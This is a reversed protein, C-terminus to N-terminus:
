PVQAVEGDNRSGLYVWTPYDISENFFHVSGDGMAAQVGGPHLSNYGLSWFHCGDAVWNSPFPECAMPTKHQNPPLNTTAVIYHSHFLMFDKQIAPLVEGILLTSTLGDRCDDFDYTVWGSSFLGPAGHDAYGQNRSICNKGDPWAPIMCTGNGPAVPGGCPAYWLGMSKSDDSLPGAIHVGSPCSSSGFRGHGQLDPATDSPCRMGPVVQGLILSANPEQHTPITTDLKDALATQEMYPMISTFWNHCGYINGCSANVPCYSGAPLTGQAQHYNHLALAVQKLQNSCQIRRAAERASQVAPLLLAILIGIIAIVVLLEVLTFAPQSRLAKGM